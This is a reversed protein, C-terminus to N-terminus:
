RHPGSVSQQHQCWCWPWSWPWPCPWGGWGCLLNQTITCTPPTQMLVVECARVSPPYQHVRSRQGCSLFDSHARGEISRDRPCWQVLGVVFTTRTRRIRTSKSIALAAQVHAILDRALSHILHLQCLLCLKFVPLSRSCWQHRWGCARDCWVQAQAGRKLTIVDHSGIGADRMLELRNM